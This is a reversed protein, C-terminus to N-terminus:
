TYTPGCGRMCSAHSPLHKLGERIYTTSLPVSNIDKKDENDDHQIQLIPTSKDSSYEKAHGEQCFVQM